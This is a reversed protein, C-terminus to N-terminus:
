RHLMDGGRIPDRAFPHEDSDGDLALMDPVSELNTTSDTCSSGVEEECGVTSDSVASEAQLRLETVKSLVAHRVSFGIHLLDSKSPQTAISDRFVHQLEDADVHQLLNEMCADAFISAHDLESHTEADAELGLYDVAHLLEALRQKFGWPLFLTGCYIFRLLEFMIDDKIPLVVETLQSCNAMTEFQFMSCLMSCHAGLVSRHCYFQVDPVPSRSVNPRCVLVIDSAEHPRTLTLVGLEGLLAEAESRCRDCGMPQCPELM